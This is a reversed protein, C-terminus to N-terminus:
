NDTRSFMEPKIWPTRPHIVDDPMRRTKKRTPTRVEHEFARQVKSFGIIFYVNWIAALGSGDHLEGNKGKM